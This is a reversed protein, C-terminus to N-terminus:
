DPRLISRASLSCSMLYDDWAASFQVQLPETLSLDAAGADGLPLSISNERIGTTHEVEAPIWTAIGRRREYRRGAIDVYGSGRYIWSLVHADNVHPPTRAAPLLEPAAVSTDTGRVM